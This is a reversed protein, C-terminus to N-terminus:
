AAKLLVFLAVLSTLHARAATTLRDGPGQLRVGGYLYHAATAGLVALATTTFGVDLLYRWFPLEFVYFGIDTGFEPDAVGFDVRNQFLMWQSWRAQGSLGAFLGVAGSALGIWVGIRPTILMRYRELAQQDPTTIRMLPRLRYALY